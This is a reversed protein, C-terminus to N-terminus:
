PTAALWHVGYPALPVALTDGEPSLRMASIADFWEAPWHPALEAREFALELPRDTVNTLALVIQSEDPALRVLSFVQSTKTLVRQEGNPHFAPCRVRARLLNSLRRVISGIRSGPDGLMAELKAADLATRNIARAEGTHRVADVDNKSGVAGLLYIGPVGRLAMAISRSAVFRDVQLDPSEGSHPRNMASWWTINIEYPSENGEGDSRYSVLGGHLRAREIVAEIEEDLLIGRAGLLGIGDHSDLFNFYTACESVRELSSAWSALRECSGTQMTHLTLPPLAFNYVMQAENSGDGFYSINDEHPVNTESILAVRPSVIDLVKRFLQIIRHTQQLHASRTGVEHWLYTVADLRILDAGRRVYYLLLEIMRLLVRPNHYNLDVQDRSFTTWLYRPGNITQFEHLLESTRPRMILQLHDDDVAERTSFGIFFGQYEPNGNLYEQFWRSKSSVHNIVGDFMLQHSLALQEIDEWTGLQPDVEEFDTISFGRDSSYPFFPLIHVTTMNKVWTDLIRALVRLPPEDDALILDGYTILIVDRETFRQARVFNRDEEIMEPTKHAYYVRMVREVESFWRGAAERGYLEELMEVIAAKDRDPIELIARTYDPEPLHLRRYAPDAELREDKIVDAAM